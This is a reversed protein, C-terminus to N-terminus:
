LRVAELYTPLDDNPDAIVFLTQNVVLADPPGTGDSNHWVQDLRLTTVATTAGTALDVQELSWGVLRPTNAYATEPVKLIYVDNGQFFAFNASAAAGLDPRRYRPSASAGSLDYLTCDSRTIPRTCFAGVVSHGDAVAWAAFGGTYNPITLAPVLRHAGPTLHYLAVDSPAGFSGAPVLWAGNDDVLLLPRIANPTRVEDVVAGTRLSLQFITPGKPAQNEYVWLSGDGYAYVPHSGSNAQYTAIAPGIRVKGGAVSAIRLEQSDSPLVFTQVPLVPEGALLPDDCAHLTTAGIGLHTTKVPAYDCDGAIGGGDQITGVVAAGSGVAVLGELGLNEPLEAIRVKPQTTATGSAGTTALAVLGAAGMVVLSTALHLRRIM